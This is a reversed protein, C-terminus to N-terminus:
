ELVGENYKDCVMDFEKKMSEWIESPKCFHSLCKIRVEYRVEGDVGQPIQWDLRVYLSKPHEYYTKDKKVHVPCHTLYETNDQM